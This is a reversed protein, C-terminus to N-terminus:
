TKATSSTRASSSPSSRPRRTWSLVCRPSRRPTSRIARGDTPSKGLCDGCVCTLVAAATVRHWTVFMRKPSRSHSFCRCPTLSLSLPSSSIDRLCCVSAARENRVGVELGKVSAQHETCKAREHELKQELEAKSGAIKAVNTRAEQVFLQYLVSRTKLLQREKAMYAEAEQKAGHLADREKEVLKLRNVQGGRKENLEELAKAKADIHEVYQQTGIIDELYELLGEDNPNVSTPYPRPV